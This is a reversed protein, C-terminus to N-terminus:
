EGSSIGPATVANLLPLGDATYSHGSSTNMSASLLVLILRTATDKGLDARRDWRGGPLLGSGSIFGAVNNDYIPIAALSRQNSLMSQAARVKSEQWKRRTFSSLMMSWTGVIHMVTDEVAACRKPSGVSTDKFMRYSSSACLKDLLAQIRDDRGPDRCKAWYDFFEVVETFLELYEALGGNVHRNVIYTLYPEATADSPYDPYGLAHALKTRAEMVPTLSPQSM